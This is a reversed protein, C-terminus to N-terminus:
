KGLKESFFIPFIRAACILLSGTHNPSSDCFSKAFKKKTQDFLMLAESNGKINGKSFYLLKSYKNQRIKMNNKM